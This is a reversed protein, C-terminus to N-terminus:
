SWILQVISVMNEVDKSVGKRYFRESIRFLTKRVGMHGSTADVHCSTM